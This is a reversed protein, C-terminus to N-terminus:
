HEYGNVLYIKNSEKIGLVVRSQDKNTTDKILGQHMRSASKMHRPHMRSAFKKPTQQTQTHIQHARQQRNLFNHIRRSYNM